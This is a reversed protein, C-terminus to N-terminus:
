GDTSVHGSFGSVAGAVFRDSRSQPGTKRMLEGLGIAKEAVQLYEELDPPKVPLEHNTV